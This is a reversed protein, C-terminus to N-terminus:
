FDSLTISKKPEGDMVFLHTVEIGEKVLEPTIKQYRHCKKYDSESCMIVTEHKQEYKILDAVGGMFFEHEVEGFGGLSKGRWLYQINRKDCEQGIKQRNFQPARRSAPYSRVDVICNIKKEALTAFFDQISHTGHGITYIM